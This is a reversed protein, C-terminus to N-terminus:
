RRVLIAETHRAVTVNENTHIVEVPVNSAAERSIGLHSLGECIAARVGAANEGIGGTFVLRDVGDLAAALSGIAKRAIYAFLELAEAAAADSQRRMLLEKVDSTTGSVGLLGSRKTILDDVEDLSRGDRFLRLVVGPDLDGPRTGMMIGGLVTLGMTTDIPKGDRAATMSAGNGLHAIIIRGKAREGLESLVYEYSLGHFGYRRIEPYLERPLPMRKALMPLDVFFATDYCAVQPIQPYAAKAATVTDLAIPLHLPDAIAERRLDAIVTETLLEHQLHQPGGFVIRHGVAEPALEREKLGLLVERVAADRSAADTSVVREVEDSFIETCEAGDVEYFGYKLSSSGADLALIRRRHTPSSKVL